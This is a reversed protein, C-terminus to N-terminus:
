DVLLVLKGRVSGSEGARHADAVGSLPFTRGVVVAFRGAQALQAVQSLAHTARGSDGSSFRVGTRQAGVFDAITVVHEPGGALEVLEPLVGSGGVDLAYDVGAPALARVRETMGDGYAVPEAGLARLADHTAPSATGVVRAGRERALQVAASGVSGSAGNILVTSGATVGLQDLARVATEAAAPLAAAM